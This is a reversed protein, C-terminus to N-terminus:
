GQQGWTWLVGFYCTIVLFFIKHFRGKSIAFNHCIVMLILTQAKLRVYQCKLTKTAARKAVLIKTKRPVGKVMALLALSLVFVKLMNLEIMM